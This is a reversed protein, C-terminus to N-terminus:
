LAGQPGSRLHRACGAPPDTVEALVSPVFDALEVWSFAAEFVDPAVNLCRWIKSWFWESSYTNGCKAIFLPRHKAALRTIDAAEQHGTHDKWLWCQAALNDKWKPDLALPVNKRM